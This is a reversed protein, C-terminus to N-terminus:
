SSTSRRTRAPSSSGPRAQGNDRALDRVVFPMRRFIEGVPVLRVRMVGERLDRLQREISTRRHEQLARWERVARAARRAHLSTTSVRARVGGHRRGPADPRRAPGPRRARFQHAPARPTAPASRSSQRSRASSYRRRRPGTRLRRRGRALRGARRTSPRSTSSSRCAVPPSCKPRCASSRALRSSAARVTDVKVGRAVLEPSPAFTVKWACRNGPRADTRRRVRGVPRSWRGDRGADRAASPARQDHFPDGRAIPRCSLKSRRPATLWRKSNAPTLAVQQDRVARLCSEMQHALLEAERLEVM